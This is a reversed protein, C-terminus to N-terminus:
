LIEVGAAKMSDVGAQATDPAISGCANLQCAVKVEPHAKKTMVASESVCYDTCLGVFKVYDIGKIERLADVGYEEVKPDLGKQIYVIKKPDIKDLLEQLKFYLTADHTNQVCHPPWPGGFEKFSCHNAPHWDKTVIFLEYDGPIEKALNEWAPNFKELGIGLNGDVFGVQVDIIALAKHSM